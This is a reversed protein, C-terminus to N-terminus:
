FCKHPKIDIKIVSTERSLLKIICINKSDEIRTFILEANNVVFSTNKESIKDYIFVRENDTQIIYKKLRPEYNFYADGTVAMFKDIISEIDNKFEYLVEGQAIKQQLNFVSRIQLLLIITAILIGVSLIMESAVAKGM